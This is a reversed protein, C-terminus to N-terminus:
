AAAQLLADVQDHKAALSAKLRAQRQAELETLQPIADSVLEGDRGILSNLANADVGNNHGYQVLAPDKSIAQTLAEGVMDPHETTIRRKAQALKRQLIEDLSHATGAPSDLTAVQPAIVFDDLASHVTNANLPYAAALQEADTKGNERLEREKTENAKEFKDVFQLELQPVLFEVGGYDVTEATQQLYDPPLHRLGKTKTSPYIEQGGFVARFRDSHAISDYEGDGTTYIEFDSHTRYPVDQTTKDRNAVIGQLALEAGAGKGFLYLINGNEDRQPMLARALLTKATFTDMNPMDIGNESTEAHWDHLQALQETTPETQLNGSSDLDLQFEQNFYEIVNGVKQQLEPNVPTTNGLALSPDTTHLPPPAHETM